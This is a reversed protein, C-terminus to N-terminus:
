ACKGSTFQDRLQAGPEGGVFEAIRYTPRMQGGECVGIKIPTGSALNVRAPAHYRGLLHHRKLERFKTSCHRRQCVKQTGSKREMPRECAQCHREYHQRHCGRCCFASRPNETPEALKLRCRRCHHKDPHAHM